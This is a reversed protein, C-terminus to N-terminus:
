PASLRVEPRVSLLAEAWAPETVAPPSCVSGRCAYGAPFVGRDVMGRVAVPLAQADVLDTGIRQAVRRPAYAALSARHMQTARPDDAAGVVVFHSAPNLHWDLALLYSAAHLGLAAAQGAFARLLEAARERWAPDGTLEALRAFVAGAVGNASPTPTDEV